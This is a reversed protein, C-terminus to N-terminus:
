MTAYSAMAMVWFLVSFVIQILVLGVVVMGIISTVMGLIKGININSENSYSLEAARIERQAKSGMHWAVIGCPFAVFGLIGLILVTTGQPHEPAPYGGYYSPRPYSAPQYPPFAQGHQPQGYPPAYQAPGTGYPPEPSTRFQNM